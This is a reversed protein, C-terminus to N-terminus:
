PESLLSVDETWSGSNLPHFFSETSVILQTFSDLAKSGALYTRQPILLRKWFSSVLYVGFSSGNRQFNPTCMGSLLPLFMPMQANSVSVPIGDPAMYYVIIKALYVLNLVM